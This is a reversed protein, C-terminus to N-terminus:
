DLGLPQHRALFSAVIWGYRDPRLRLEAITSVTVLDARPLADVLAAADDFHHIPDLRHGIVLVPVEIAALAARDHQPLPSAQLGEILAAAAVPDPTLLDRVIAVEVPGDPRPLRRLASLPSALVPSTVRLSTALVGFIVRAFGESRRLVPMEVVLAALREPYRHAFELAVNAGLSLGGVVAREIGLEDMVARVDSALLRWSYDYAHRPRSSGGHGRVDVAIVRYGPLRAALRDFMEASFLLGHVLMIPVGDVPGWERFHITIEGNTATAM